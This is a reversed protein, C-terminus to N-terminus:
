KKETRKLDLAQTYKEDQEEEIKWEIWKIKIVM